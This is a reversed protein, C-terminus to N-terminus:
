LGLSLGLWTRDIGLSLACCLSHLVLLLGLITILISCILANQTKEQAEDKQKPLCAPQLFGLQFTRYSTRIQSLYSCSYELLIKSKWYLFFDNNKPNARQVSHSALIFPQNKSPQGEDLNQGNVSRKSSTVNIQSVDKGGSSAWLTQSSMKLKSLGPRAPGILGFQARSQPLAQSGCLRLNRQCPGSNRSCQPSCSFQLQLVM